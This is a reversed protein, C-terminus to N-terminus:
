VHGRWAAASWVIAAKSGLGLLALFTAWGSTTAHLRWLVPPWRVRCGDGPHRRIATRRGPRTIPWIPSGGSGCPRLVFEIMRRRWANAHPRPSGTRQWLGRPFCMRWLTPEDTANLSLLAMGWSCDVSM